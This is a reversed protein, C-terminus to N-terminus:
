NFRSPADGVQKEFSGVLASGRSEQGLQLMSTRHPSSLFCLFTNGDVQVLYTHAVLSAAPASPLPLTTHLIWSQVLLASYEPNM